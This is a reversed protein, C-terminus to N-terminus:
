QFRERYRGYLLEVCPRHAYLWREARSMDGNLAMHPFRNKKQAYSSCACRPAPASRTTSSRALRTRHRMSRPSTM